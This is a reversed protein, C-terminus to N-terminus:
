QHRIAAHATSAVVLPAMSEPMFQILHTSPVFNSSLFPFYPVIVLLIGTNCDPDIEAEEKYV